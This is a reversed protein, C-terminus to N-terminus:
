SAQQQHAIATIKERLWTLKTSVTNQQHWILSVQIPPVEFPTPAIDISYQEAAAQAQQMPITALLDTQEVVAPMALFNPIYLGVKRRIKASGLVIELPSGRGARTLLSIHQCSRYGNLTLGQAFAPHDRRGIVVLEEETLPQYQLEQDDFHLYDVALDIEGTSLHKPLLEASDEIVHVTSKPATKAMDTLLSPLIRQQAYDSMALYFAHEETADFEDQPGLTHQLLQLAQRIPGYIALAQATPTMGAPTRQFLEDGLQERLRALANSAAPQSVHLRLAARSLNREQMLADFVLLLNLNLQRLNRIM